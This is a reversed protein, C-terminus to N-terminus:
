FPDNDLHPGNMEAMVERFWEDDHVVPTLEPEFADSEPGLGESHRLATTLFREAGRVLGEDQTWFCM